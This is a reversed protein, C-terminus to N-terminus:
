ALTAALHPLATDYWPWRARYDPLRHSLPLLAQHGRVTHRVAGERRAALTDRLYAFLRRAVPGQRRLAQEAVWQRARSPQIMLQAHADPTMSCRAKAEAALRHHVDTVLSPRRGFLTLLRALKRDHPSPRIR